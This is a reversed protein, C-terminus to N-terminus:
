MVCFWILLLANKILEYKYSVAIDNGQGKEPLEERDHVRQDPDRDEHPVDDLQPDDKSEHHHLNDTPQEEAEPLLFTKINNRQCKVQFVYM